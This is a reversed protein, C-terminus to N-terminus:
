QTSQPSGKSKIIKWIVTEALVVIDEVPLYGSVSSDFLANGEPPFEADGRWLVLGLSVCPFVPVLVGVDGMSFPEGGFERAAPLLSEPDPGFSRVLPAKCRQQFVPHYFNGGPIEAFSIWKGSRPMGSAKELYHLVLIEERLSVPGGGNTSELAGQSLLLRFDRGLYRVLIQGPGAAEAKYRCGSRAAREAPDARRLAELSLQRALPLNEQKTLM